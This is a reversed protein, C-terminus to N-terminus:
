FGVLCQFYIYQANLNPMLDIIAANVQEIIANLLQDPTAIATRATPWCFLFNPQMARSCQLSPIICCHM